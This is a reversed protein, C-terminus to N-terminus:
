EFVFSAPWSQRVEVAVGSVARMEPTKGKMTKAVNSEEDSHV